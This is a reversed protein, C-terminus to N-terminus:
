NWQNKSVCETEPDCDDALGARHFRLELMRSKPRLGEGELTRMVEEGARENWVQGKEKLGNREGRM